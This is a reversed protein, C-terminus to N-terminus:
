TSNEFLLVLRKMEERYYNCEEEKLVVLTIVSEYLKIKFKFRYKRSSYIQDCNNKDHETTLGYSLGGHQHTILCDSYLHYVVTDYQLNTNGKADCHSEHTQVIKASLEQVLGIIDIPKFYGTIEALKIIQEMEERLQLAKDLPLIVCTSCTSDNNLILEFEFEFELRRSNKIEDQLTKDSYPKNIDVGGRRSVIRGCSTFYHIINKDGQATTIILLCIGDPNCHAKYASRVKSNFDRIKAKIDVQTSIQTGSSEIDPITGSLKIDPITGSSEIDPITGSSETIASM